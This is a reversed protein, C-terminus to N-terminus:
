GGSEDLRPARTSRRRACVSVVYRGPSLDLMRFFGRADTTASRRENTLSDFASVEARAIGRVEDRVIGELVATQQSRAASPSALLLLVPLVTLSRGIM